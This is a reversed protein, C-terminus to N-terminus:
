AAVVFTRLRKEFLSLGLEPVVTQLGHPKPGPVLCRGRLRGARRQAGMSRGQIARGTGTCFRGPPVFCSFFSKEEDSGLNVLVAPPRRRGSLAQGGMPRLTSPTSGTAQSPRGHASGKVGLGRSLAGPAPTDPQRRKSPLSRVRADCRLMGWRAPKSGFIGTLGGRALVTRWAHARLVASGRRSPSRPVLRRVAFYPSRSTQRRYLHSGQFQLRQSVTSRM